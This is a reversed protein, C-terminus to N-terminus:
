FKEPRLLSYLLYAILLVCVASTWIYDSMSPKEEFTRAVGSM